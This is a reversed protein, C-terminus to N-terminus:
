EYWAHIYNGIANVLTDDTINNSLWRDKACRIMGYEKGDIIVNFSLPIGQMDEDHQPVVEGKIHTGKHVLSLQFPKM